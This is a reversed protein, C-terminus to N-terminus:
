VAIEFSLTEQDQVHLLGVGTALAGGPATWPEVCVFDRGPLTWLVLTRFAPSWRLTVPPLAGRHLVTGADHHDILALDLEGRDFDLRQLAAEAGSRNDIAETADTEIWSARKDTARFYPHFGAHLPLPRAGLNRVHLGLSLSRESLAFSLTAEFEHPFVARTEDSAALRLELRDGSQNLVQWPLNRAFGHQRLPPVAKGAIPFLVPIGGRVNKTPDALTAPDLFLVEDDALLLRTAIAGREPVIEAVADGSHLAIM